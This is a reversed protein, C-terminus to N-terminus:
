CCGTAHQLYDHGNSSGETQDMIWGSIVNGDDEDNDDDDDADDGDDDDGDGERSWWQRILVCRKSSPNLSRKLRVRIEPHNIQKHSILRFMFPAPLILVVDDVDDDVDYDDDNDVDGDVDDDVENDADDTDDADYDSDYNCLASVSSGM